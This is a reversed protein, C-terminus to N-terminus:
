VKESIARREEDLDLMVGRPNIVVGERKFVSVITKLIIAADLRLSQHEVYWIDLALRRDWPLDNRGNIQAWGTIGPRVRHRLNEQSTYYPLYKMLLPRPGVLSMDGVLVNFLEPLEDLSTRRLFQGLPTLRKEDPLLNGQKDRADRMTRFKYLMFPKGFRGPRQQRFLVPSGMQLRIALATGLMVPAFLVLGM